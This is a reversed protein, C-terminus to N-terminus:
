PLPVLIMWCCQVCSRVLSSIPFYSFFEKLKSKTSSYYRTVVPKIGFQEKEWPIWVGDYVVGYRDEGYFSPRVEEEDQHEHM